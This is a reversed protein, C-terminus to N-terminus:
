PKVETVSIRVATSGGLFRGSSGGNIYATGTNPGIRVRFTTASTTGAAMEHRVSYTKVWGASSNWVRSAGIAAATTDQFLAIIITASTSSSVQDATAEIILRNTASVPTITVTAYEAGETIAPITDDDPIITSTSAYTTFPTGEVRQVLKGGGNVSALKAVRFTAGDQWVVVMDGAAMTISSGGVVDIVGASHTVSWAADAILTWPGAASSPTGAPVTFDTITATGTVHVTNGDAPLALTTASAINAGLQTTITGTFDDGALAAKLSIETDLENIAAQGTTAAINGAPTNVVDSGDIKAPNLLEWRTNTLDYRLILEYGNGVIDGAVLASGGQRVITRATLGNPAFTPTTTANALTARVFCLQGDVLATIAPSYVATIADATGGGDVWNTTGQQVGKKITDGYPVTDLTYKKSNGGGTEQLEGEDTVVPVAKLTLNAITKNAM